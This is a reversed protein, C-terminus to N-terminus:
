KCGGDIVVDGIPWSYKSESQIANADSFCISIILYSYILEMDDPIVIKLKSVRVTCCVAALKGSNCYIGLM